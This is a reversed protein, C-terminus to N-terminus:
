DAKGNTQLYKLNSIYFEPFNWAEFPEPVPCRERTIEQEPLDDITGAAEICRDIYEIINTLDAKSGVPGHGPVLRDADYALIECLVRRLQLPDGNAFYPHCGIFLLDSLFLIKDGPLYAMVDSGTHANRFEKLIVERESGQIVMEDQFLLEPERVSLEPLASVIGEYYDLGNLLDPDQDGGAQCKMETRLEALQTEAIKSYFEIEQMGTTQILALTEKSSLLGSGRDFM